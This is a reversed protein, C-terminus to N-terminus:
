KKNNPLKKIKLVIVNNYFGKRKIKISNYIDTPNALLITDNLAFLEVSSISNKFENLEEHSWGGWRGMYIVKSQNSTDSLNVQISDELNLFRSDHKETIKVSVNEKTKNTVRIVRIPDCSILLALILIVILHKM